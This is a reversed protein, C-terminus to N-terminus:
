TVAGKSTLVILSCQLLYRGNSCAIESGHSCGVAGVNCWRDSGSPQVIKTIFVDQGSPANLGGKGGDGWMRLSQYSFSLCSVLVAAPAVAYTVYCGGEWGCHEYDLVLYHCDDPKAMNPERVDRLVIGEKHLVALARCWAYVM